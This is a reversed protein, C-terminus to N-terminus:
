RLSPLDRVAVDNDVNAEVFPGGAGDDVHVSYGLIPCGGDSSPAQWGITIYPASTDATIRYPRNFTQPM